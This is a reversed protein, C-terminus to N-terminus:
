LPPLKDAIGCLDVAKAELAEFRRMEDDSLSERRYYLELLEDVVSDLEKTQQHLDVLEKSPVFGCVATAWKGIDDLNDQIGCKM